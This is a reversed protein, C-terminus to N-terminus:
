KGSPSPPLPPAPIIVNSGVPPRMAEAQAPSPPQPLGVFVVSANAVAGAPQGPVANPAMGHPDGTDSLGYMQAFLFAYKPNGQITRLVISTKAHEILPERAKQM